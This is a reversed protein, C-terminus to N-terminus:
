SCATDLFYYMKLPLHLKPNGVLSLYCEHYNLHPKFSAISFAKTLELIANTM